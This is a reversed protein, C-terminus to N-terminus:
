QPSEVQSEAPLRIEERLMNAVKQILPEEEASHLTDWDCILIEWNM